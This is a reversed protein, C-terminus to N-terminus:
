IRSTLDEAVENFKDEVMRSFEDRINELVTADTSGNGEPVNITIPAEITITNQSSASAASQSPITSEGPSTSVSPRRLRDTNAQLEVDRNRNVNEKQKEVNEIATTIDKLSEGVLKLDEAVKKSVTSIIDEADNLVKYDDVNTETTRAIKAEVGLRSTSGRLELGAERGRAIANTIDGQERVLGQNEEAARVRAEAAGRRSQAAQVEAETFNDRNNLVAATEVRTEDLNARSESVEVNADLEAQRQALTLKQQELGLIQKEIEFKQNVLKLEQDLIDRQMDSRANPDVDLGSIISSLAGLAGLGGDVTSSQAELGREATTINNRQSEIARQESLATDRVSSLLTANRDQTTALRNEGQLQAVRERDRVLSNELSTIREPAADRSSLDSILNEKNNVLNQQREIELQRIEQATTNNRTVFSSQTQQLRNSRNQLASDQNGFRQQAIRIQTTEIGRNLAQIQSPDAGTGTLSDRLSQQQALRNQLKQVELAGITQQNFDTQTLRSQQQVGLFEQQTNLPSNARRLTLSQQESILEQERNRLERQRIVNGTSGALEQQRRNAELEQTVSISRSDALQAQFDAKNILNAEVQFQLRNEQSEADRKIKEIKGRIADIGIESFALEVEDSVVQGVTQGGDLQQNRVAEVESLAQATSIQGSQAKQSINNLEARVKNDFDSVITETRDATRTPDTVINGLNNIQELNDASQRQRKAFIRNQEESADGDRLRTSITKEVAISAEQAKINTSAEEIAEDLDSLGEKLTQVEENILDFARTGPSASGLLEEQVSLRSEKRAREAEFSDVLGQQTEISTTRLESLTNGRSAIDPNNEIIENLNRRNAQGNDISEFLSKNLIDEAILRERRSGSAQDVLVKANTEVNAIRSVFGTGIDNATDADRNGSIRRVNDATELLPNSTGIGLVGKLLAFPDRRNEDEKEQRSKVEADLNRTARGIATDPDSNRASVELSERFNDTTEKLQQFASVVTKIAIVVTAFAALAVTAPAIAGAFAGVGTIASDLATTLGKVARSGSVRSGLAGARDSFGIGRIQDQPSRFINQASTLGATAFAGTGRQAGRAVGRATDRIGGLRVQDRAGRNELSTSFISEIGGVIPISRSINRQRSFNNFRSIPNTRNSVRAEPQVFQFGNDLFEQRQAGSLGTAPFSQGGRSFSGGGFNIDAAGFGTIQSLILGLKQFSGYLQGNQGIVKSAVVNYNRWGKNVDALSGVQKFLEGTMLRTAGFLLTIQAAGGGAIKASEGLAKFGLAAEASAQVLGPFKTAVADVTSALKDLKDIGAQFAPAVAKGIKLLSRSVKNAVREFELVEDTDLKVKFVNELNKELAQSLSEGIADSTAQINDLTQLAAEGGEASINVVYDLARGSLLRSLQEDTTNAKLNIAVEQLSSEAVAEKTAQLTRGTEKDVIGEEDIRSQTQGSTIGSAFRRIQTFAVATSTGKSTLTGVSAALSEISAGAEKATAAAQGFGLSLEPITTIGNEVTRNLLGAVAAAESADKGYANLTKGLLRLVQGSEAGSSVSLKLGANLVDLSEDAGTFGSSLVEYAGALAETSTVADKLEGGVLDQISGVFKDIGQAGSFVSDVQAVAQSFRKYEASAEKAIGVVDQGGAFGGAITGAAKIPTGLSGTIRETQRTDVGVANGIQLSDGVNQFANRIEGAKSILVDASALAFTFWQVQDLQDALKVLRSGIKGIRSEVQIAEQSVKSFTINDALKNVRTLNKGIEDSADAAKLLESVDPPKALGSPQNSQLFSNINPTQAVNPTQPISLQGSRIRQGLNSTQYAQGVAQPQFQFRNPTEAIGQQVSKGLNSFLSAKPTFSDLKSKAKAINRTLEAFSKASQTSVQALQQTLEKSAAGLAKIQQTNKTADFGKLGYGGALAGLSATDVAERAQITARPSEIPFRPSSDPFSM